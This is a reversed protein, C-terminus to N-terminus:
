LYLAGYVTNEKGMPYAKNMLLANTGLNRQIRGYLSQNAFAEGTLTITSVGTKKMLQHIMEAMYDGFSEFISYCLFNTEVSALQYSMISALFASNDFRNDQFHTDIQLGGKGLFQMAEKSIADFNEEELGLLMAAITFIDDNEKLTKLREIRKPFAKTYNAVLRDTGERLTSLSKLLDTRALPTSPIVNIVEKTTYYLFNISEDFHIGLAKENLKQHEALVSLMAAKYLPFRKEYSHGSAYPESELVHMAKTAITDFKYISDIVKQGAVEVCALNHAMTVVDKDEEVYSPYVIREGSIFLTTDQHIFVKTDKQPEIEVNFTVELDAENVKQPYYAIFDLGKEKLECALLMSMGDDPYKTWVSAGFLNKLTESKTALHLLPREISLLANFEENVIMCHTNLTNPNLIFLYAGTLNENLSPKFFTRIGNTTKMVVKKGDMIAGASVEFLQRYSSKDNAIHENDKDKIILPIGCDICSILPYDKRLGAKQQERVCADCPKFFRMTSNQRNYPYHEIFPHQTGCHNCSTFPYYYRRSSVDFMEKQCSPCLSLNLPLPMGKEDKTAPKENARYHHSKKLFLSAPLSSELELLFPELTKDEQAIITIINNAQVVEGQVEKQEMLAQILNKIYTKNSNFTLELIFYMNFLEQQLTQMIM